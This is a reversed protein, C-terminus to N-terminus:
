RVIDIFRDVGPVEHRTRTGDPWVVMIEDLQERGGLGFHLEPANGGLYSRGARVTRLWEDEGARLTVRAGIAHTNPAPAHLRLGLWHGRRPAENHLLQFVSNNATVALDMRGDRDYDCAIVCRSPLKAALAEGGLENAATFRGDGDGLFFHNAQGVCISTGVYDPSTYGNAIFLDLDGDLDADFLECGWSTVGISPPGLGSSVTADRFSGTRSRQESHHVTNNLYLANSELQWNTLFLDEDGDSDVDGIALGMGGRPDDMGADFSIDHLGEPTREYLVNPSVDNAIYLDEDGDQDFDWWVPQMGRGAADRVGCQEASDTIAEGGRLLRNPAGPFAFPLMETPDERRHTGASGTVMKDPDYDLYSTIYLDLDGDSDADGASLGASWADGAEDVTTRTFVGEGNNLFLTDPGYNAIYLDLDGDGDQDFFLAGMGAGSDDTGSAESRDTFTGDGDSQFLRNTPATSGARGGGQVLYLDPWGDANADGWAAGPGMTPRIDLQMAPGEMHVFDVGAERATDRFWDRAPTRAAAETLGTRAHAIQTKLALTWTHDAIASPPPTIGLELIHGAPITIPDDQLTLFTEALVRVPAGSVRPSRPHDPRPSAASPAGAYLRGWRIALPEGADLATLVGLQLQDLDAGRTSITITGEQERLVSARHPGPSLTISQFGRPDSKPQQETPSLGPSSEAGFLFVACPTDGLDITYLDTPACSADQRAFHPLWDHGSTTSRVSRPLRLECALKPHGQEDLFVRDETGHTWASVTCRSLTLPTDLAAVIRLRIDRRHVEARVIRESRTLLPLLTTAGRDLSSAFRFEGDIRSFLFASQAADQTTLAASLLLFQLGFM